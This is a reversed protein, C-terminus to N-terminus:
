IVETTEQAALQKEGAQHKASKVHSHVVSSILFLDERCARSTRGSSGQICDTTATYPSLGTRMRATLRPSSHAWASPICCRPQTRWHRTPWTPPWPSLPALKRARHPLPLPPGQCAQSYWLQQPAPQDSPRTTSPATALFAPVMPVQGSLTGTLGAVHSPIFLALPVIDNPTRELMLWYAAM